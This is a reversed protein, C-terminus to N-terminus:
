AAEKLGPHWREFTSRLRGDLAQARVQLVDHAGRQSWAMQQSKAMRKKVLRGVVAEVPATSIPCGMRRNRGYNVLGHENSELYRELDDWAARIRPARPHPPGGEYPDELDWIEALVDDMRSIRRDISKGHWLNWKLLSVRDFLRIGALPDTRTLGKALQELARFRMAIHFWDLVLTSRCRWWRPRYRQLATEGDTVWWIRDPVRHGHRLVERFPRLEAGETCGHVLGFCGRGGHSTSIWGAVVEFQLRDGPRHWAKLFATDLAVVTRGCRRRTDVEQIRREDVEADLRSAVRHVTRRVTEDSVGRDIPLM